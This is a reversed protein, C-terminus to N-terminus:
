LFDFSSVDDFQNPKNQNANMQQNMQPGRPGTGGMQQMGMLQPRYQPQKVVFFIM